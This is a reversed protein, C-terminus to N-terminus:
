DGLLRVHAPDPPAPVPQPALDRHHPGLDDDAETGGGSLRKQSCVKAHAALSPTENRRREGTVYQGRDMRRGDQPRGIVRATVGRELLEDGIQADGRTPDRLMLMIVGASNGRALTVLTSSRSKRGTITRRMVVALAGHWLAPARLQPVHDARQTLARATASIRRDDCRFATAPPAGDGMCRARGRSVLRAKPRENRSSCRKLPM